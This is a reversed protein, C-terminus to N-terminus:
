LGLRGALAATSPEDLVSHALAWVGAFVEAPAGAQMGGLLEARDDVNMAPLMLALSVAMEDPPISSVIAQHVAIVVDPGVAAELAPM